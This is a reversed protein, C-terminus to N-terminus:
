EVPLAWAAILRAPHLSVITRLARASSLQRGIHARAIERAAAQGKAEREARRDFLSGQFLAPTSRQLRLDISALRHELAAATTQTQTAAIRRRETRLRELATLVTPSTSLQRAWRQVDAPRTRLHAAFTVVLCAVDRSTLRGSGDHVDWQFLLGMGGTLPRTRPLGVCLASGRDPVHAGITMRAARRRLHAMEVFSRRERDARRPGSPAARDVIPANDFVAAGVAAEDVLAM